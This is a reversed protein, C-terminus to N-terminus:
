SAAQLPEASEAPRVPAEELGLLACARLVAEIDGDIVLKGTLMAALPSIERAGIQVFTTAQTKVTMAPHEAPGALARARGNTIDIHFVEDDIHFEYQEDVTIHEPDIMAEVALLAWSPRVEYEPSLDRVYELGWRALPLVVPRLAEGKETLEYTERKSNGGLHARRVIGEDILFKLRDALLNTGIGPLASLLESYRRPRVLLERIILLTWREGVVDLAMALGCYQQYARKTSM